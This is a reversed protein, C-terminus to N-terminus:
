QNQRRNEGVKAAGARKSRSRQFETVYKDHTKYDKSFIHTGDNKSVFFLYETSAPNVVARIATEGPNAIPTPPLGTMKYTNYATKELLNARTLNGNFTPLLGYITTPDAQLRMGKRLRNWYVSAIIPQEAVDGSEKEVISALTLLKYRGEPTSGWPHESLIGEVRSKFLDLMHDILSEASQYKFYTYTEPFLFGELTRRIKPNEFKPVGMRDLRKPDQIWSLYTAQDVQFTSNAFERYIDWINTGERVVIRRSKPLGYILDNLIKHASDGTNLTYEGPRLRKSAGTLVNWVKMQLKPIHVGQKELEPLLGSLNSGPTIDFVIEKSQSSAPKLLFDWSFYALGASGLALILFVFGLFKKM